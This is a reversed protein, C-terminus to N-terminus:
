TKRDLCLKESLHSIPIAELGKQDLDVLIVHWGKRHYQQALAWGLGAAGGTILVRRTM